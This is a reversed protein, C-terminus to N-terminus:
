GASGKGCTEGKGSGKGLYKLVRQKVKGHDDRYSEVLYYYIRGNSFKKSRIFSM